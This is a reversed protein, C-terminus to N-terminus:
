VDRKPCNNRLSRPPHLQMKMLTRIPLSSGFKEDKSKFAERRRGLPLTHKQTHKHKRKTAYPDGLWHLQVVNQKHDLALLLLSWWRCDPSPTKNNNIKNTYLFSRRKLQVIFIKLHDTEWRCQRLKHWKWKSNRLLTVKIPSFIMPKLWEGLIIKLRKLSIQGRTNLDASPIIGISM